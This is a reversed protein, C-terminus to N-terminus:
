KHPPYLDASRCTTILESERTTIDAAREDITKQYVAACADAYELKLKLRDLEISGVAVGHGMAGVTASVDAAHAPSLQTFADFCANKRIKYDGPTETKRRLPILFQEIAWKPTPTNCDKQLDKAAATKEAQDRNFAAKREATKEAQVRNLEVAGEYQQRAYAHEASEPADQTQGLVQAFSLTSLFLMGVALCLGGIVRIRM